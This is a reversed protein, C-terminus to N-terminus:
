DGAAEAGRTAAALLESRILRAFPGVIAWFPRFRVVAGRSTCWVGADIAIESGRAHERVAAALVVKAQGPEAFARFEEPTSIAAFDAFPSWLRGALGSVSLHRDEELLRFPAARFVDHFTTTAPPAYPGLRLAILPRLARADRVRVTKASEWLREPSAACARSQAM